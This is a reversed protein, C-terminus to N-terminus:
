VSQVFTTNSTDESVPLLDVTQAIRAYGDTWSAYSGEAKSVKFGKAQAYTPNDDDATYMSPTLLSYTDSEQLTWSTYGNVLDGDTVEGDSVLTTQLVNAVMTGGTITSSATQATSEVTTTNPITAGDLRINDFYSIQNGDRRKTAIGFKITQTGTYSSVDVTIEDFTTSTSSTNWEKTSGVWFAAESYISMDGSGFHYFKIDDIGTLDVEQTYRVYGDTWATYSEATKEFRACYGNDTSTTNSVSSSLTGYTDNEELTWATTDQTQFKGNIPITTYASGYQFYDGTTDYYAEYDTAVNTTTQFTDVFLKDYVPAGNNNLKSDWGIYEANFFLQAM